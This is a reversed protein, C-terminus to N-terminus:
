TWNIVLDNTLIEESQIMEEIRQDESSIFNDYIRSLKSEVVEIQKITLNNEYSEPYGIRLNRFREDIHVALFDEFDGTWGEKQEVLFVEYDRNLQYKYHSGILHDVYYPRVYLLECHCLRDHFEFGFIFPMLFTGSRRMYVNIVRNYQM